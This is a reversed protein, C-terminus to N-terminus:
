WGSVPPEKSYAEESGTVPKLLSKLPAGPNKSDSGRYPSGRTGKCLAQKAAQGSWFNPAEDACEIGAYSQFPTSCGPLAHM